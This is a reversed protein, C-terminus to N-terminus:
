GRLYGQRRGFLAMCRMGNGCQGAESGDRNFIRVSFDAREERPAEAVLM